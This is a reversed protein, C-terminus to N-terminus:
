APGGAIALAPRDALWVRGARGRRGGLGAPPLAAKAVPRNEQFRVDGAEALGGVSRLRRGPATAAAAAMRGAVVAVRDPRLEDGMAVGALCRVAVRAAGAGAAAGRLVAAAYAHGPEVPRLAAAPSAARHGRVLGPHVAARARGTNGFRARGHAPRLRLRRD